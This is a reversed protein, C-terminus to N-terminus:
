ELGSYNLDTEKPRKYIVDSLLFYKTNWIEDLM